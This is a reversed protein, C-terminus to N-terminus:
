SIDAAFRSSEYAVRRHRIGNGVRLPLKELIRTARRGGLHHPIPSSPVYGYRGALSILFRGWWPSCESAQSRSCVRIASCTDTAQQAETRSTRVLRLESTSRGGYPHSGACRRGQCSWVRSCPSPWPFFRRSSTSSPNSWERPMPSSPSCGPSSRIGWTTAPHRLGTTAASHGTCMRPPNMKGGAHWWSNGVSLDAPHICPVISLKRASKKEQKRKKNPERSRLGPPNYSLLREGYEDVKAM